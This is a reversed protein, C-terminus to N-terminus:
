TPHFPLQLRGQRDGAFVRLGLMSAFHYPVRGVLGVLGAAAPQLPSLHMQCPEACGPIAKVGAAVHRVVSSRRGVRQAGSWGCVTNGVKWVSYGPGCGTDTQATEGHRHLRRPKGSGGVWLLVAVAWRVQTIIVHELVAPIDPFFYYYVDSSAKCRGSDSDSVSCSSSVPIGQYVAAADAAQQVTERQQMSMHQADARPLQTGPSVAKIHVFGCVDVGGSQETNSNSSCSGSQSSCSCASCSSGAHCSNSGRPVAACAAADSTGRSSGVACSSPGTVHARGTRKDITVAQATVWTPLYSICRSRSDTRQCPVDLDRMYEVPVVSLLRFFMRQLYHAVVECPRQLLAMGFSSFPDSVPEVKPVQGQRLQHHPQQQQQQGGQQLSSGCGLSSLLLKGKPGMLCVPLRLLPV